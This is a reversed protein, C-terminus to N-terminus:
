ARSRLAHHGDKPHIFEKDPIVHIRAHSVPVSVVAGGGRDPQVFFGAPNPIHVFVGIEPNETM